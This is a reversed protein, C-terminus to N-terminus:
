QNDVGLGFKCYVCVHSYQVDVVVNYVGVNKNGINMPVHHVTLFSSIALMPRHTVSTDNADGFLYKGGELSL